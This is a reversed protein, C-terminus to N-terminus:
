GRAFVWEGETSMEPEFLYGAKEFSKIDEVNEIRNELIFRTMLGRAKKAYVAIVKYTKAKKEKFIPTVVPKSLDRKHISKFYENSSLNLLVEAGQLDKNLQKTIKDDWFGYLDKGQSTPLKTGMELRYPQIRDLPRLVGYLGSLIRLHSQAYELTAPNMSDADIGRYVEGRFALLAQRAIEATGNKRWKAFREVNLAAIEYSVKMLKSLDEVQFEKLAEVLQNAERQYLPETGQECSVEGEFDLTKAPSIIILM